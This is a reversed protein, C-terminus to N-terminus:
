SHNSAPLEDILLEDASRRPAAPSPTGYGIRLLAQPHVAGGLLDRLEARTEPLGVVEPLAIAVLGRATATLWVRQMAQGARLEAEPSNECTGLVVLLPQADPAAPPPTAREAFDHQPSRSRPEPVAPAEVDTREAWTALEACFRPDAMRARHAGRVLVEVADRERPQVLHLFGGEVRAAEVLEHQKSEPVATPRFPQRQTRRDSIAEYLAIQEAEPRQHGASRVEALVTPTAAPPLLSVIPRVGAHALALRLNMLAAGCALRLEHDDPDAVPLRRGPDAHMEIVRPLVRFRWPQCNHLSPARGALRIAQEIQDPVLDFVAPFRQM